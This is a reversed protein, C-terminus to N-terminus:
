RGPSGGLERSRVWDRQERLFRGVKIAELSYGGADTEPVWADEYHLSVIEEGVPGVVTLDGSTNSFRGLFEGAIRIGTVDYRDAFRRRDRVIVVVGGPELTEVAGLAFHFSISGRVEIGRMDIPESGYNRFEVFEYDGADKPNYMLESITLRAVHSVLAHDTLRSWLEGVRVRARVRTNGDVVIPGSWVKARPSVSGDVLQPDAGDLTYWLTGAGNDHTIDISCPPVLKGTSSTLVPAELLEGRFWETRQAVWTELELLENEWEGAAIIPWRVRDREEAERIEDAMERILTRVRDIALEGALMARGRARYRARFAADRFLVGWWGHYNDATWGTPRAPRGVWYEADNTRMARDFDWVPGMRLREGRRKYFYTSLTYADPNKTYESFVHYDIFNDVDIWAAYGLAPDAFREGNLVDGFSDFFRQLWARQPDTIESEKPYVFQLRQGRSEFGMDGPGPRDIKLIYGGTVQPEVRDNPDLAEVDVRHEGRSIREVLLYLGAYDARTVAKQGSSVFLEVFRTRPSELGVRRALEYCLANRIHAQDFNHPAYLVWDADAPLGALPISRDGSSRDRVELGYSRKPLDLTSSGRLKIAAHGSYQAADRLTVRGGPAVDVAHLHAQTYSKPRITARPTAVVLLPLNSSFGALDDGLRTFWETVTPSPMAGDVFAKVRLEASDTLTLVGDCTPSGPGPESGDLTYRLVAADDGGPLTVAVRIPESFLAGRPSIEPKPAVATFGPGNPRGPTPVDFSVLRGHKPAECAYGSLEAVVLHELSNSSEVLGQIALVNRGARLLERAHGVEFYESRSPDRPELGVAARADFALSKPARRRAIESGNLWAVFGSEFRMRLVCLDFAAPDAVDFSFRYRASSNKGRMAAGVDTRISPLLNGDRTRDFGLGGAGSSWTSDDFDAATWEAPSAATAIDYRAAADEGLLVEARFEQALGQSVDRLQRGYELSSVETAGDPALLVVVGGGRALRFSTHLPQSPDRRDKGSAHILLFGGAAISVAPVRWRKPESRDDTLWHGDLLAPESSANYLEIWDALLGDRDASGTQNDALIETILVQGASPAALALATSVLVSLRLMPHDSPRTHATRPRLTHTRPSAPRARAAHPETDPGM